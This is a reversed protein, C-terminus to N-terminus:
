GLVVCKVKKIAANNEKAERKFRVLNEEDFNM